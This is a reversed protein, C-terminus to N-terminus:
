RSSFGGGMGGRQRHWQEIHAPLILREAVRNARGDVPNAFRSAENESRVALLELLGNGCVGASAMSDGASGAAVGQEQSQHGELDPRAIFHNQRRVRKEGRGARHPPEAGRRHEDIDVRSGEIEVRPRNGSAGGAGGLRDQRNM